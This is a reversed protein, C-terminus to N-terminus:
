GVKRGVLQVRSKVVKEKGTETASGTGGDLLSTM